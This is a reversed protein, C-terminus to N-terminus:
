NNVYAIHIYKYMQKLYWRYGLTKRRHIHTQTHKYKCIYLNRELYSREGLVLRVHGIAEM